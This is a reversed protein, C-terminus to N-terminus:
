VFISIILEALVILAVLVNIIERKRVFSEIGLLVRLSPTFLFLLLGASMAAFGLPNNSLHSLAAPSITSPGPFQTANKQVLTDLFGSVMLGVSALVALQLISDPHKLVNRCKRVIVKTLKKNPLYM